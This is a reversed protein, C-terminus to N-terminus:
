AAHAAVPMVAALTSWSYGEAGLGQGTVPHYFEWLGAREVMAATRTALLDAVDNFGQTRLGYCVLWNTNVWSPGRWVMHFRKYQRQLRGFPGSADPIAWAGPRYSREDASVSPIPFPTWFRTPQLLQREVLRVAIDRPLSQLLLPLLSSVTQVRLRGESQGALSHFDGTEPEYCRGIIAAETHEAQVALREASRDGAASALRCVARLGAAYICNFGLDEVSFRDGEFIRGLDWRLRSYSWHLRLNRLHYSIATVKRRAMLADFAPSHDMGSEVPNIISVLGDRDPDRQELFYDYHRIAAPLMEQVFALDGTELFVAELALGLVPPQTLKAFAKRQWAQTEHFGSQEARGWRIMHPIFGDPRAHAVLSRLEARALDPALRANVIAHFCSDWLWQYPYISRAPRSYYFATSGSPSWGTGRRANRELTATAAAELGGRMTTPSLFITSMSWHYPLDASTVPATAPLVLRM